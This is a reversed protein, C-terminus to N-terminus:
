LRERQTQTKGEIDRRRDTWTDRETEVKERERKWERDCM